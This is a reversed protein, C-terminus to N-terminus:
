SHSWPLSQEREPRLRAEWQVNRLILGRTRIHFDHRCTQAENISKYICRLTVLTQVVVARDNCKEILSIERYTKFSQQNINYM